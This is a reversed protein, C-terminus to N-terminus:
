PSTWAVCSYGHRVTWGGRPGLNALGRQLTIRRAWRRAALIDLSVVGIALIVRVGVVASYRTRRSNKWLAHCRAKSAEDLEMSNLM